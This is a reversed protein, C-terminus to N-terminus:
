YRLLTSATPDSRLWLQLWERLSEKSGNTSLSDTVVQWGADWDTEGERILQEVIPVHQQSLVGREIALQLLRRSQPYRQLSWQLIQPALDPRESGAATEVLNEFRRPGDSYDGYLLLGAVQLVATPLDRREELHVFQHPAYRRRTKGAEVFLISGDPMRDILTGVVQIRDNIMLVDVQTAVVDPLPPQQELSFGCQMACVSVIFPLSVLHARLGRFKYRQNETTVHYM